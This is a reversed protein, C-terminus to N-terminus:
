CAAARDPAAHQAIGVVGLASTATGARAPSATGARHASLGTESSGPSVGSRNFFLKSWMPSFGMVKGHRGGDPSMSKVAIPMRRRGGANVLRPMSSSAIKATRVSPPYQAVRTRGAQPPRGASRRHRRAERARRRRPAPCGIDRSTGALLYSGSAFSNPAPPKESSRPTVDTPRPRPMKLRLM